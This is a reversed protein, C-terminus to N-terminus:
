GFFNSQDFTLPIEYSAPAGAKIHEETAKMRLPPVQGQVRIKALEDQIENIIKTDCNKCFEQIQMKDGVTVGDPTTIEVISDILLEFNITNLVKFSKAFQDAKAKEDLASARMTAYIKEQEFRATQVKTLTQYDLPLVKIKFGSKTTAIDVIEVKALGELLAPLNVSHEVTMTTGPVSYTMPMVEGYTAVRIALLITDTDYNTMKWPNKLNPVCSKIVDVTSQGSILSDPTKFALEDMATMPFVPIEGTESPTYVDAPYYKGKTPLTVYIQPQRYYKGLPNTNTQNETNETM